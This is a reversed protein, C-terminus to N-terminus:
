GGPPSYSVARKAAQDMEEPTLLVTTRLAVGGAAGVALSLAAASVNDPVDMIGLVDDSGLTFYMVDLKGGLSEVAKAAAAVRATGGDKVIGKVGELTYSGQILYKAM